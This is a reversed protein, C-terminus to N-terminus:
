SGLIKPVLRNGAGFSNSGALQLVMAKIANARSTRESVAEYKKQEHRGCFASCSTRGIKPLRNIESGIANNIESVWASAQHDNARRILVASITMWETSGGPDIPRVKKLGPDGSEDIYAIFEYDPIIPDGM